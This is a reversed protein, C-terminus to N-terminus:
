PRIPAAAAQCRSMISSWTSPEVALSPKQASDGEDRWEVIYVLTDGPGSPPYTAGRRFFFRQVQDEVRFTTIEGGPPQVDVDLFVDSLFLRTWIHRPALLGAPAASNAPWTLEITIKKVDPAEFLCMVGAVFSTKSWFEIGLQTRTRPDFNYQFDNALLKAFETSNRERWAVQFNHLVNDESTQPLYANPPDVVDDEDGCGAFTLPLVLAALLLAWALPQRFTM